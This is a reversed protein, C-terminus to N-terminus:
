EISVAKASILAKETVLNKEIISAKYSAISKTPITKVSVSTDLTPVQHKRKRILESRYQPEKVSLTGLEEPVEKTDKSIVVPEVIEVQETLTEEYHKVDEVPVGPMKIVVYRPLGEERGWSWGDPRVVIVDGKKASTEYVGDVAQVLLEASM